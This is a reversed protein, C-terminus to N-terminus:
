RTSSWQPAEMKFKTSRVAHGDAASCCYNCAREGHVFVDDVAQVVRRLSRRGLLGSRLVVRRGGQQHRQVCHHTDLVWANDLVNVVADLRQAATNHQVLYTQGDEAVGAWRAQGPM